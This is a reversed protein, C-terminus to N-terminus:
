GNDPHEAFRNAFSLVGTKTMTIEVPEAIALPEESSRRWETLARKADARSTHWSFGGSAGGEVSYHNRYLKM